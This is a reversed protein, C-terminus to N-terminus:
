GGVRAPVLGFATQSHEAAAADFQFERADLLPEFLARFRLFEAFQESALLFQM